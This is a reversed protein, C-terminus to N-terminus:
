RLIGRMMIEQMAKATTRPDRFEVWPDAEKAIRISIVGHLGGWFLQAVQHPDDFEPRFRGAEMAEEVSALLFAYADESPDGQKPHGPHIPGPRLTMFMLQYHMPYELAFELYADGIRLIREVPDEVKGIKQFALALSRFDQNCLETVLEEKSAFHHYIATPTYEIRDAIARMSTADYGKKVFLDRAADLIKQRTEAAERKRREASGM